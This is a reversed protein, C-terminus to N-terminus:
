LPMAGDAVPQLLCIAGAQAGLAGIGQELVVHAVQEGTLSESLAATVAQLRAARELRRSIHAAEAITTATGDGHSFAIEDGGSSVGDTPSLTPSAPAFTSSATTDDM